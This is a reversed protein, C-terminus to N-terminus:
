LSKKKSKPSIKKEPELIELEDSNDKPMSDNICSTIEMALYQFEEMSCRRIEAASIKEVNDEHVDIMVSLVESMTKFIKLPTGSENLGLQSLSMFRENVEELTELGWLEGLAMFVELGNSLKFTKGKLKIEPVRM